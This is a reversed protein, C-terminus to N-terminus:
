LRDHCFREPAYFQIVPPIPDRLMVLETRFSRIRTSQHSQPYRDMFDNCEQIVKQYREQKKELVSMEAFRYYSKIAMLM